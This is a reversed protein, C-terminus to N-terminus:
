RETEPEQIGPIEPWLAQKKISNQLPMKGNFHKFPKECDTFPKTRRRILYANLWREASTFSQFGKITKLRGALHSNFSEIINNTKPCHPIREYCFLEDYRKAIDVIIGQLLPNNDTKHELVHLISDERQKRSTPDTFVQKMLANFFHQYIPNDKGTTRLHLLQRINEIYHTHCLQIAAKPYYHKAAMKLAEVDDCIVVRLPYDITKLLRFLKLFSEYSETPALIGVPFDHRLFDVSWIFPIKKDYGKVAIYKGDVNLIGSWRNCYTASLWTNDPLRDMTHVVHRYSQKGSLGHENGLSRSSEGDIHEIWELM